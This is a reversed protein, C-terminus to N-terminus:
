LLEKLWDRRKLNVAGLLFCLLERQKSNRLLLHDHSFHNWIWLLEVANIRTCFKAFAQKFANEQSAAVLVKEHVMNRMVTLFCELSQPETHCSIKWKLVQGLTCLVDCIRKEKQECNKSALGTNTPNNSTFMMPVTYIPTYTLCAHVLKTISM